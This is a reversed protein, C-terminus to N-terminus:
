RLNEPISVNTATGSVVSPLGTPKSKASLAMVRRSIVSSSTSIRSSSPSCLPGPAAALGGSRLARGGSDGGSSLAVRSRPGDASCSGSRAGRRWRRSPRARPARSGSGSTAIPPNAGARKQLARRHPSVAVAFRQPDDDGLHSPRLADDPLDELERARGRGPDPRDESRPEGLFRDLEQCPLEM